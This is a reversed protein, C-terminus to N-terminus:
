RDKVTLALHNRHVVVDYDYYGLIDQIESTKSGKIKQIEASSYNALGRALVMGSLNLLNVADGRDFEKKVAVIGSPLLSKGANVIANEAGNDIIISGTIDAFFALWRKHGSLPSDNAPPFFTGIDGGDAIKQINSITRGDIIWLAEGAHTVIEAAELKSKMGGRSLQSDSGEAMKFHYNDLKKIISIRNGLEGTKSDRERMGDVMTLLVTLEAQVMTSLLASLRDNEGFRIEDVCVSDNENIIPLVNKALLANLCDLVHLHRKKSLSIDDACLLIQACHFGRKMCATEYMYMLKSQGIAATAQQDPLKKPRKKEKLVTMGTGIAGSTVLLLDYGKKRLFFVEEILKDIREQRSAEDNATLLRTGVKLVITKTREIYDKRLKRQETM